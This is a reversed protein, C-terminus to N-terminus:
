RKRYTDFDSTSTWIFLTASFSTMSSHLGKIVSNCLENYCLSSYLVAM